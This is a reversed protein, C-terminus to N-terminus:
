VTKLLRAIHATYKLHTAILPLSFPNLTGIHEPFFDWKSQVTPIHFPYYIDDLYKSYKFPDFM